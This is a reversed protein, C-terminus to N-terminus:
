AARLRSSGGVVGESEAVLVSAAGRERATLAAALGAVGSGVVIVDVDRAEDM